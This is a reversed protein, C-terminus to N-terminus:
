IVEHYDLEKGHTQELGKLALSAIVAPQLVVRWVPKSASM